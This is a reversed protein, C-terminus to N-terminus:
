RSATTPPSRPSRRVAHSSASSLLSGDARLLRRPAPLLKKAALAMALSAVPSRAASAIRLSLSTTSFARPNSGCATLHEIQDAVGGVRERQRHRGRGFGAGAQPQYREVRTQGIRGVVQEIDVRSLLWGALVGFLLGGPEEEFGTM